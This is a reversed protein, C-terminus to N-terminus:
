YPYVLLTGADWPSVYWGKSEIFDEVKNFPVKLKQTEVSLWLGGKENSDFEESLKTELGFKSKLDKQLQQKSTKAEIKESSTIKIRKLMDPIPRVEQQSPTKFVRMKGRGNHVAYKTDNKSIYWCWEGPKIEISDVKKGERTQVYGEPASDMEFKDALVGLKAEVRAFIDQEEMNAKHILCPVFYALSRLYFGFLKWNRAYRAEQARIVYRNALGLMKNEPTNIAFVDGDKALKENLLELVKAYIEPDRMDAMADILDFAFDAEVVGAKNTNLKDSFDKIIVLVKDNKNDLDSKKLDELRLGKLIDLYDEFSLGNEM